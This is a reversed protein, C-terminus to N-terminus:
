QLRQQKVQLLVAFPLAPLAPHSGNRGTDSLSVCYSVLEHGQCVGFRCSLLNLEFTVYLISQYKHLTHSSIYKVPLKDGSHLPSMAALWYGLQPAINTLILQNDERRVRGWGSKLWAGAHVFLCNYDYPM